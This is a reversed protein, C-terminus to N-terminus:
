DVGDEDAVASPVEAGIGEADTSGAEGNIRGGGGASAAKKMGDDSIACCGTTAAGGGENWGRSADKEKNSSETSSRAATRM